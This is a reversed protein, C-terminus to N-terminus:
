EVRLGNEESEDAMPQLAQHVPAYADLFDNASDGNCVLAFFVNHHRPHVLFEKVGPQGTQVFNGLGICSAETIQRMFYQKVMDVSIQRAGSWPGTEGLFVQEWHKWESFPCDPVFRKLFQNFFQTVDQVTMWSLHAKLHMRRFVAPSQYLYTEHYCLISVSFAGFDHM